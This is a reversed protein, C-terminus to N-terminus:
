DACVGERRDDSLDAMYQNWQRGLERRASEPVQRAFRPLPGTEVSSVHRDTAVQAARVALWWGTSGTAQLRAEAVAECIDYKQADVDPAGPGSGPAARGLPLQCIEQFAGVHALLSEALEAWLAALRPPDGAAETLEEFLRCIRAHDGRVLEVLDDM